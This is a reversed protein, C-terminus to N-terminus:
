KMRYVRYSFLEESGPLEAIREFEGSTTVRTYLDKVRQPIQQDSCHYLYLPSNAKKSEAIVADLDALSELIRVRPDYIASQRDSVGFTATMASPSQERILAVTERVPQRDVNRVVERAHATATGFRFVVWCMLLSTAWKWKVLKAAEEMLLPLALVAPILSFILYWVTMPTGPRVNMLCTIAGALVPAVIVIRTAASQVCAVILAAGGLVLFMVPAVGPSFFYEGQEHLWDTGRHSDPFFNEYPWGSVMVSGLDRYWQWVDTVYSPQSERLFALIQPINPLMLQLVVVAGLLNM